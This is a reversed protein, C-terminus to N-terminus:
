ELGGKELAKSHRGKNLNRPYGMGNTDHINTKLNLDSQEKELSKGRQSTMLLTGLCGVKTNRATDYMYSSAKAFDVPSQVQVCAHGHM